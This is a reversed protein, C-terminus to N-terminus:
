EDSTELAALVAAVVSEVDAEADVVITAAAPEELAALQSSLLAADFFHGRRQRLRRELVAPRARLFVIRTGQTGELLRRRYSEKLASCAIVAPNGVREHDLILNHVRALWPWRDDDCLATGAAMKSINETPHLDDGDHFECGMREALRRGVTTKGAGSVGMLLVVSFLPVPM